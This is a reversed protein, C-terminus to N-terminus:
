AFTIGTRRGKEGLKLPSDDEIWAKQHAMLIGDALPDLEPPIEAGRPLEEPLNAPDRALVPAVAFADAAHLQQKFQEFSM